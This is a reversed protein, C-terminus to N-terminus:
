SGMVSAWVGPGTLMKTRVFVASIESLALSVQTIVFLNTETIERRFISYALFYELMFLNWKYDSLSVM